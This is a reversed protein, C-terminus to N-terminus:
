RRWVGPGTSGPMASTAPSGSCRRWLKPGISWSGKMRQLRVRREQAKLVENATRAQMFTMAGPAIPEGHERLTERVAGVAAEPVPKMTRHQGTPEGGRCAAAAGSRYQRGLGGQSERPDWAGDPERSIRGAKQARRM